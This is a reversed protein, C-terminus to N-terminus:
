LTRSELKESFEKHPELFADRVRLLDVKKTLAEIFKDVYRENPRCIFSVGWRSHSFSLTGTHIHKNNSTEELLRDAHLAEIKRQFETIDPMHQYSDRVYDRAEERSLTGAVWARNHINKSIAAIFHGDVYCIVIEARVHIVPDLEGLVFYQVKLRTDVSSEEWEDVDYGDYFEFVQVHDENSM